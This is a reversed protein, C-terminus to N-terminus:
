LQRRKATLNLILGISVSDVLLATGGYSVFPLTNGTTPIISMSVGTNILANFFINMGLGALLYKHYNNERAQALKLIRFFLLAHLLLVVAAGLFGFEEGIITYIYDTRAEPLFYHKARGHSMGTGLVGGSTLATLSERVQYEEPTNSPEPRNPVLLSYVRYTNIRESRFADGKTIILAGALMGLLLVSLVFRKRMGAFFLMGMLTAGGIVLTSLHRGLFILVFIAVTYLILPIFELALEKPNALGIKDQKRDLYGAFFLILVLRALTSPQIRLPGFVLWREAGNIKVGFVLVAFLLAIMIWILWKNLPRFTDVKFFYLTVITALISVGVNVAHHYFNVMSSQVSSLALMLLLGIGLLALYCILIPNDISVIYSNSRNKKM